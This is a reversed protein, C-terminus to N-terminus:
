PASRGAAIAADLRELFRDLPEGREAALEALTVRRGPGNALDLAQQLVDPPVDRLRAVYRPTMWGELPAAGPSPAFAFHLVIFAARAALVVAGMALLALVALGLPRQRLRRWARIIAGTVVGTM